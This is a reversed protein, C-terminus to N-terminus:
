KSGEILKDALYLAYSTLDADTCNIVGWGTRGSSAVVSPNALLGQLAMGAFYKRDENASGRAHEHLWAIAQQVSIKGAALDECITEISPIM